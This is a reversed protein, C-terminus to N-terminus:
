GRISSLGVQGFQGAKNEKLKRRLLWFIAQLLNAQHKEKQAVVCVKVSLPKPIMRKVMRSEKKKMLAMMLRDVTECDDDDRDECFNTVERVTERDNEEPYPVEGERRSSAAVDHDHVLHSGKELKESESQQVTTFGFSFLTKKSTM